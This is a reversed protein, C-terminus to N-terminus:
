RIPTINSDPGKGLQKKLEFIEHILSLERELGQEYLKRYNDRSEKYKRLKEQQPDSSSAQEARAAEIKEILIQHQPRSKKISGKKRGAELSVADKSIITGKPVNMPKNKILRILAEDYVDTVHELVM